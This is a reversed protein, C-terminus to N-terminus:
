APECATIRRDGNPTDDETLKGRVIDVTISSAKYRKPIRLSVSEGRKITASGLLTGIGNHWTVVRATGHATFSEVNVVHHYVDFGCAPTDSQPRAAEAPACSVAATALAVGAVAQATYGIVRTITNM